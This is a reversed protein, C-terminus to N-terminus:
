GFEAKFIHFDSNFASEFILAPLFLLLILHPNLKSWVELAVGLRGM